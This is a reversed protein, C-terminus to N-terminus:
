SCAPIVHSLVCEDGGFERSRTATERHREGAEGAAAHAADHLPEGRHHALRRDGLAQRHDAQEAHEARGRQDPRHQVGGRLAIEERPQAVRVLRGDHLREIGRADLIVDVVAGACQGHRLVAIVAGLHQERLLAQGLRRGIAILEDGVQRHAGAAGDLARPQLSALLHIEGARDLRDVRNGGGLDM